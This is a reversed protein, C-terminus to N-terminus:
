GKERLCIAVMMANPAPPFTYYDKVGPVGTPAPMITPPRPMRSEATACLKEWEVFAREFDQDSVNNFVRAKGIGVPLPLRMGMSNAIRDKMADKFFKRTFLPNHVPVSCRRLMQLISDRETASILGLVNSLVTMYAMNCAVAEGHMLEYETGLADMELCQGVAHGFDVLRDLSDEWLNPALEELMTEISLRLVRAPVDDSESHSQFRDKILRPANEALLKFLEPSKMIAMKNMEGLSNSIDRSGQTKFFDCDLLAAVPPVYTGLRNKSGCFNCGNKAGVSADVYALSTTPVRIYPTRRRFLSAALGVVDLAVGGGIAIVPETRRDINFQKMKKCVELTLEMSKTEEILPLRLVEHEVGRAEFYAKVKAGYHGYVTEDIVVLRRQPRALAAAREASGYNLHGFVLADCKPDLLSGQPVEVHDLIQERLSCTRRLLAPQHRGGGPFCVRHM